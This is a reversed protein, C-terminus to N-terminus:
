SVISRRSSRVLSVCSPRWRIPWQRPTPPTRARWRRCSRSRGGARVTGAYSQHSGSRPRQLCWCSLPWPRDRSRRPRRRQGGGRERPRSKEPSTAPSPASTAFGVPGSWDAQDGAADETAVSVSATKAGAPMAFPVRVTTRRLPAVSARVAYTRGGARAGAGTWGDRECDWRREPVHDRSEPPRPRQRCRRRLHQRARDPRRQDQGGGAVLGIRQASVASGDDARAAHDVRAVVGAIASGPLASAPPEVTLSVRESAGPEITAVLDSLTLWSAPGSSSASSAYKVEGDSRAMADVAEFQVTLRLDRSRNTVVFSRQVSAGPDLTVAIRPSGSTPSDDAAVQLVSTPGRTTPATTVRHRATLLRHARARVRVRARSRRGRRRALGVGTGCGHEDRDGRVCRHSDDATGAGM